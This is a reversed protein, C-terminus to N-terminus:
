IETDITLRNYQLQRLTFIILIFLHLLTVKMQESYLAGCWYKNQQYM